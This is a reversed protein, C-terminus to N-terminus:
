VLFEDESVHQGYVSLPTYGGDKEGAEDIRIRYGDAYRKQIRAIDKLPLPRITRIMHLTGGGNWANFMGCLTDTPVTLESDSKKPDRLVDWMAEMDFTGFFAWNGYNPCERLSKIFADYKVVEKGDRSKRDTWRGHCAVGQRLAEEKVKRPNLSLVAMLGTLANDDGYLGGADWIDIWCDYNSHLQLLGHIRAKMWVEKEPFSKDREEITLRIQDFEDTNRFIDKEEKTLDFQLTLIENAEYASAYARAEDYVGDETLPFLSGKELCKKFVDVPLEDNYDTYVLHYEDELVAQQFILKVAIDKQLEEDLDSWFRGDSLRVQENGEDYYLEYEGVTLCDPKEEAAKQESTLCYASHLIDFLLNEFM